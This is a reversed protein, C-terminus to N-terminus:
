FAVFFAGLFGAFAALFFAPFFFFLPFFAALFAAFFAALFDLPFFDLPLFFFFFYCGFRLLPEPVDRRQESKTVDGRTGCESSLEGVTVLVGNGRPVIGSPM